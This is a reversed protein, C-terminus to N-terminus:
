RKESKVKPIVRPLLLLNLLSSAGAVAGIRIAPPGRRSAYRLLAWNM